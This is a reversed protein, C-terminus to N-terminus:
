YIIKNVSNVNIKDLMWTYNLQYPMGSCASAGATAADVLTPCASFGEAWAGTWGTTGATPGLV